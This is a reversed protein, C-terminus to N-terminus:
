AARSRERVPQRRVEDPPVLMPVFFAFTSGEGPRSRVAIWGGLLQALKKSISLGLGTGEAAHEDVQQFDAALRRVDEARIGIGTDRVLMVIGPAAPRLAAPADGLPTLDAQLGDDLASADRVEVTIGGQDTFKLANAVLNTLVQQIKQRDSVLDISTPGYLTRLALGKRAGLPLFSGLVAEVLPRVAVPEARLRMKGAEIKAYDLLDSILGHLVIGQSRISNVLPRAEADGAAVHGPLPQL